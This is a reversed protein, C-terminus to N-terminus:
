EGEVLPAALVGAGTLQLFRRRSTRTRM